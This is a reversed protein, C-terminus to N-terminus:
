RDGREIAALEVQFGDLVVLQFVNVGALDNVSLEAKGSQEVGHAHGIEEHVVVADHGDHQLLALDADADVIGLLAHSAGGQVVPEILENIEVGLQLVRM